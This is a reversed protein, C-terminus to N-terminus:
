IETSAYPLTFSFTSGSNKNSTVTIKNGHRKIIENAIFLGMGMGPFTKGNRGAVRYFQQFIKKQQNPKIGIGFDEVNVIAGDDKPEVRIIIKDAHPSYKVANTLLNTIVQYIRDRDGFVKHEVKGLIVIKHTETTGQIADIAEKVLGNLDFKKMVFELKGHQLITINLLDEILTALKNIQSTVKIFYRESNPDKKIRKKLGQLYIKISTIPTKLEHSAASIFNDRLKVAKEVKNKEMELNKIHNRHYSFAIKSTVVDCYTGLAHSIQYFDKTGLQDLLGHKEMLQWVAQKMFIIGDVAEEISLNDKVSDKALREGLRKFTDIGHKIDKFRLNEGFKQVIKIHNKQYKELHETRFNDGGLFEKHHSTALKQIEDAHIMLFNKMISFVDNDDSKM